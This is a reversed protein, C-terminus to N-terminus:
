ENNNGLTLAPECSMKYAEINDRIVATSGNTGKVKSSFRAIQESAKYLRPPSSERDSDGSTTLFIISIARPSYQTTSPALDNYLAM